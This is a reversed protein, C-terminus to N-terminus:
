ESKIVFSVSGEQGDRLTTFTAYNEAAQQLAKGTNVFMSADGEFLDALEQHLRM